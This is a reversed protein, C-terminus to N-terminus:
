RSTLYLLDQGSCSNRQGTKLHDRIAMAYGYWQSRRGRWLPGTKRRWRCGTVEAATLIDEREITRLQERTPEDLGSLRNAHAQRVQEFLNRAVRANGFHEGKTEWLNRLVENASARYDRLVEMRILLM